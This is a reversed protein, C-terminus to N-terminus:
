ETVKGKGDFDTIVAVDTLKSIDDYPEVTAYSVTSESDFVIDKVKGIIIGSPYVGGGLTVLIDDTKITNNNDLGSLKTLNDGSLAATGSIIGLDGTRSVKAGV